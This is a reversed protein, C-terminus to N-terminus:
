VLTSINVGFFNSGNVTLSRGGSGMTVTGITDTLGSVSSTPNTSRDVNLSSNGTIWLNRNSLNLPVDSRLSLAGGSMQITSSTSLGLQADNAVELTGASINISGTMNNAGTIRLVGGGQKQFGKSSFVPLQIDVFSVANNNGLPGVNIIPQATTSTEF